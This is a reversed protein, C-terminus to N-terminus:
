FPQSCSAVVADFGSVQIVPDTLTNAGSNFYKPSLIEQNAYALINAPACRQRVKALEAIGAPTALENVRANFTPYGDGVGAISAFVVIIPVSTLQICSTSIM